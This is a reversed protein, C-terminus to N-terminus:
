LYPHNNSPIINPNFEYEFCSQTPIGVEFMEWVGVVQGNSISTYPDNSRSTTYKFNGDFLIFIDIIDLHNIAALIVVTM